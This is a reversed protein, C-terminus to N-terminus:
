ISWPRAEFSGQSLAGYIHCILTLMDFVPLSTAQRIAKAYPPLDSCQILWAGISPNTCLTSQLLRLLAVKLADSDLDTQAGAIASFEPLSNASVTVIRESENIGCEHMVSESFTESSAFVIGLQRSPPLARLLMPVELLISLFVPIVLEAAVLSQYNAFSGCAGCIVNVGASQLKRAAAIIFPAVRQDGAMLERPSVGAVIEFLVPFPFSSANQINGRVLEHHTEPV